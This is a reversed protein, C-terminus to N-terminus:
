TMEARVTAIDDAEIYAKFTDRHSLLHKIAGACEHDAAADEPHDPSMDIANEHMSQALGELLAIIVDADHPM